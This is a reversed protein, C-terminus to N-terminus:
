KPVIDDDSQKEFGARHLEATSTSILSNIGPSSAISEAGISENERDLEISAEQQESFWSDEGEGEGEINSVEKNDENYKIVVEDLEEEYSDNKSEETDGSGSSSDSTKSKVNNNESNSSGPHQIQDSSYPPDENQSKNSENKIQHNNENKSQSKSESESESEIENQKSESNSTDSSM